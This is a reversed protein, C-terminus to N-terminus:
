AVGILKHVQVSLRYGQHRRAQVLGIAAILSEPDVKGTLSERGEVFMPSICISDCKVLYITPVQNGIMIYRMESISRGTRTRYELWMNHLNWDEKPSITVYTILDFADNWEIGNTELATRVGLDKVAGVLSITLQLSPEGGTFVIWAPREKRVRALIQEETLEFKTEFPTDCFNCKLNCGAFRVFMMPIGTNCGEGKISTFIEVLRYTNM